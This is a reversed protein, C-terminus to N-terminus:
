LLKQFLRVLQKKTNNFDYFKTAKKRALFGMKSRLDEDNVLVEIYEAIRNYDGPEVYYGDIGNDIIEAMGGVKSAIVPVSSAMSEIVVLGFAEQCISPAVCVTTHPLIRDISEVHGPCWFSDELNLDHIIKKFHNLDPGDGCYVFALDARKVKKVLVDAAKIFIHIGKYFSARGCCFVIKKDRPIKFLSHPDTKDKVGYKSVDIGNCITVVKKAPVHADILLQRVYNSVTIVSDASFFRSRNLVYKIIRRITSSKNSEGSTHHHVVLVRVGALRLVFYKSHITPRDILYVVKIRRKYVFYFLGCIGANSFDFQIVEINNIIFSEPANNVLPFCLFVKQGRKVFYAGLEVFCKGIFEWAYGTSSPFNGVMLLNQEDSKM